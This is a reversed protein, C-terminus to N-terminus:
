RITQLWLMSSKLHLDDWTGLYKKRKRKNKKSIKIVPVSSKSSGYCCDAVVAGTVAGAVAGATGAVATATASHLGWHM